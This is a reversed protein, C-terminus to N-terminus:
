LSIKKTATQTCLCIALSHLNGIDKIKKKERKELRTYTLKNECYKNEEM